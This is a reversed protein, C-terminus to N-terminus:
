IFVRQNKKGAMMNTSSKLTIVVLKHMIREYSILKWKIEVRGHLLTINFRIKPFHKKNLCTPLSCPCYISIILNEQFHFQQIYNM